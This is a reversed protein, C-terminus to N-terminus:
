RSSRLYALTGAAIARAIKDQGSPSHMFANESSNSIFGMEILIAPVKAWNLGTMDFHEHIGDDPFGTAAVLKPLILGAAKNSAAVVAQSTYRTSQTMAQAGSGGGGSADDAHIRIFLDAHANNAIKARESNSIDVNQSTRTMIVRVGAAVLDDRIKLSVALNLESEGSAGDTVKPKTSSSGPAIPEQNMNAHAQHGPDIVVVFGTKPAPKVSTPSPSPKPSTTAPPTSSSEIPPPPAQSVTLEIMQDPVVTTGPSPSQNLVVGPQNPDLVKTIKFQLGDKHLTEKAAEQTMGVFNPLAIGQPGTSVTLGVATGANVQTGALPLQASVQGKPVNDDPLSARISPKLGKAELVANAQSVTLKSVDPVVVKRACGALAVVTVLIVILPTVWRNTEPM